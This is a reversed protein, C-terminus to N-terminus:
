KRVWRLNKESHICRRPIVKGGLPVGIFAELNGVWERLANKAVIRIEGAVNNEDLTQWPWVSGRGV